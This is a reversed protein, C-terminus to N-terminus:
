ASRVLIESILVWASLFFFINFNTLKLLNFNKFFHLLFLSLSFNFFLIISDINAPKILDWVPSFHIFLNIIIKFLFINIFHINIQNEINGIKLIKIIYM